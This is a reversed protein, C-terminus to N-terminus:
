LLPLVELDIIYVVVRPNIKDIGGFNFIITPLHTFDDDPLKGSDVLADSFFKDIISCVNGVDRRAETPFYLEYFIACRNLHALDKLKDISTQTYLIKVNNLVQFHDNRYNNLNLYWKKPKRKGLTVFLPLELKFVGEHGKLLEELILM